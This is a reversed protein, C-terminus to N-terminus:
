KGFSKCSLLLMQEFQNGYSPLRFGNAFSRHRVLHTENWRSVQSHVKNGCIRWLLRNTTTETFFLSFCKALQFPGSSHRSDMLMKLNQNFRTLGMRYGRSNINQRDHTSWLVLEPRCKEWLAHLVFDSFKYIAHRIVFSSSLWPQWSMKSCGFCSFNYWSSLQALKVATAGLYGVKRVHLLFDKGQELRALLQHYKWFTSAGRSGGHRRWFSYTDLM